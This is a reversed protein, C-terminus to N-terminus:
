GQIFKGGGGGGVKLWSIYLPLSVWRARGWGGEQTKMDWAGMGMLTGVWLNKNSNGGVPEHQLRRSLPCLASWTGNTGAWSM